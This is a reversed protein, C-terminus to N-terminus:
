IFFEEPTYFKLNLGEAFKKDSDSFDSQRGAADGVYFSKEKDINSILSSLYKWMGSAPKRFEDKSVSMLLIVPLNLATLANQVKTLSLSLKEDSKSLQNTFIVITYGLSILKNLSEIRKTLIRINSPDTDFGTKFQSSILTDDLDFGAIYPTSSLESTVYVLLGSYPRSWNGVYKAEKTVVPQDTFELVVNKTRGEPPIYKIGLVNFIDEETTINKIKPDDIQNGNIDTLDYESLKLGMSIAKNRSDINFKQSGTFYLLAFPWNSSSVLRIDLRRVPHNSDLRILGMFKTPGQALTGIILGKTTFADIILSMFKEGDFQNKNEVLVDIDSSEELKRRYSGTIEYKIKNPNFVSAFIVNISDIEKRPIKKILDNYYYYGLQQAHTMTPFKKQLDQLTRYGENYWDEANKKGVGHIGRFLKTVQDREIDSAPRQALDETTGSKLIEDIRTAIGKAVGPIEKQAQAGSRIEIPWNMINTAAKMYANYRHRDKINLDGMEELKQAIMVNIPLPANPQMM